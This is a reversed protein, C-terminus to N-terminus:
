TGELTLNSSNKQILILLLKINVYKGLYTCGFITVWNTFNGSDTAFLQKSQLCIKIVPLIPALEPHKHKPKNFICLHKCKPLLLHTAIKAFMQSQFWDHEGDTVVTERPDSHFHSKMRSGKWESFISGM